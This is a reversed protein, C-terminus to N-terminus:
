PPAPRGPAPLVQAPRPAQLAERGEARHRRAAAQQKGQAGVAPRGIVQERQGRGMGPHGARPEPVPAVIQERGHGDRHQRQYQTPRARRRAARGTSSAAKSPLRTSAHLECTWLPAKLLTSMGM